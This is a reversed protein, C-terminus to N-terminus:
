EPRSRCTARTSLVCPNSLDLRNRQRATPLEHEAARSVRAARGGAPQAVHGYPIGALDLPSPHALLVGTTHTADSRHWMETHASGSPVQMSVSTLQPAPSVQSSAVPVQLLAHGHTPSVPCPCPGTGADTATNIASASSNPWDTAGGPWGRCHM